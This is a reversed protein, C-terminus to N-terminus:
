FACRWRASFGSGRRDARHPTPALHGLGDAAVARPRLNADEEPRAPVALATLTTM